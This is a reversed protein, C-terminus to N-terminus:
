NGSKGFCQGAIIKSSMRPLSLFSLSLPVKPGIGNKKYNIFHKPSREMHISALFSVPAEM